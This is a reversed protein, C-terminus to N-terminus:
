RDRPYRSSPLAGGDAAGARTGGHEICDDVSQEVHAFSTSIVALDVPGPVDRLSRYTARGLIEPTSPTVLYIAGPFGGDILQRSAVHGWKHAARSAGLIAVSRPQLIEELSYFTSSM